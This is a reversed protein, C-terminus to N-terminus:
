RAPSNSANVVIVWEFDGAWGCGQGGVGVGGGDSTWVWGCVRVGEM